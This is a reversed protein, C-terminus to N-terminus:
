EQGYTSHYRSWWKEIESDEMRKLRGLQRALWATKAVDEVMVAAKLAKRPTAAFAFVGHNSLLMAPGRARHKLMGSAINEGENDLYPACPIDGGFEDAIATLCCPISEGIAAWATAYNSHTHVVGGLQADAKYLLLHHITDVSPKLSSSVRDPVLQANVSTGNLDVVSLDEPRLREYDIGSPKILVLGSERDIGSANGSHMTVLGAKPLQTNAWWVEERLQKFNM